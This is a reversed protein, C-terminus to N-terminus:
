SNEKKIAEGIEPIGWNVSFESIAQDTPKTSYKLEYVKRFIKLDGNKASDKLATMGFSSGFDFGKDGISNLLELDSTEVAKTLGSKLIEVDSGSLEVRNLIQDRYNM